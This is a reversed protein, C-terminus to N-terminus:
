SAVVREFVERQPEAPSHELWWRAIDERTAFWVGDQALAYELFRRVGLAVSPRGGIRLHIGVSMMKPVTEGELLLCDLTDKLVSFFDAGTGLSGPGWFRGDNTDGAYPLVLHQGNGAPVFYPLDDAYSNSDYLFGEEALIARTNETIDERVYWGVPTVGATAEIAAKAARIEAREEDPSMGTMGRWRYGHACIEHGDRAIALAADPNKELAAGCAMFTAPVGFERLMGLYRWVGVRPGYEFFSEKMLNRRAPDSQWGGFIVIDEDSEDGAAISREAGEEYNVVLSVAVKAGGPWTIVPPNEGYGILDRM